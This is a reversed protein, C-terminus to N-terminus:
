HQGPASALLLNRRPAVPAVIDACLQGLALVCLAPSRHEDKGRPLGGTRDALWSPILNHMHTLRCPLRDALPQQVGRRLAPSRPPPVVDSPRLAPGRPFSDYGPGMQQPCRRSRQQFHDRVVREAIRIGGCEGPLAVEPPWAWDRAKELGSGCPARAARVGPGAGGRRLPGLRPPLPGARRSSRAGRWRRAFRGPWALREGLALGAHQAVQRGVHTRRLDGGLEVEGRVCDLGVQPVQVAVEARVAAPLGHCRARAM